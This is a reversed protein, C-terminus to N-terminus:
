TGVVTQCDERLISQEPLDYLEDFSGFPDGKDAVNLCIQAFVNIVGVLMLSNMVPQIQVTFELHMQFIATLVTVM